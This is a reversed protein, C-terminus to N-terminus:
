VPFQLYPHCTLMSGLKTLDELYQPHRGLAQRRSPTSKLSIMCHQQSLDETRSRVLPHIQLGLVPDLSRQSEGLVTTLGFFIM